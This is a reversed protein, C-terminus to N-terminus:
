DLSMARAQITLYYSPSPAIGQHTAKAGPPSNGNRSDTKNSHCLECRIDEGRKPFFILGVRSEDGAAAVGPCGLMIASSILLFVLFGGRLNM